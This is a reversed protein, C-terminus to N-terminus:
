RTPLVAAWLMETDYFPLVCQFTVAFLVAARLVEVDCTKYTGLKCERRLSAVVSECNLVQVAGWALLGAFTSEVKIEEQKGLEDTVAICLEKLDCM